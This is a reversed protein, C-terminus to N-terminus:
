SKWKLTFINVFYLHRHNWMAGWSTSCQNHALRGATESRSRPVREPGTAAHQAGSSLGHSDLHGGAAHIRRARRGHRGDCGLHACLRRREDRLHRGVDLTAEVTEHNDQAEHDNLLNVVARDARQQTRGCLTEQDDQAGTGGHGTCPGDLKELPHLADELREVSQRGVDTVRDELAHRRDLVVGVARNARDALAEHHDM